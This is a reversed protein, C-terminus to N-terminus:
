TVSKTSFSSTGGHAAVFCPRARTCSRRRNFAGKVHGFLENEILSASIAATNVAVFPRRANRKRADFCAHLERAVLKREGVARVRSGPDAFRAGRLATSKAHITKQM